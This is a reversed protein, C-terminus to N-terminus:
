ICCAPQALIQDANEAVKRFAEAHEQIVEKHLRKFHPVGFCIDGVRESVPLTGTPQRLDRSSHAIRTPRGHGYIDATNFLPHVHMPLNAGPHATSGEACVAKCFATIGVGGLEEGRYLGKAAYWGGMTSGSDKPPRHARIGPCGELLDWFYNMARQIEEIRTQYDRLQSRCLASALQNVRGKVGGLPYGRYRTLDPDTLDGHREYHGWAVAREWLARDRTMFMGAEGAVLSKQSMLSMAAVDGFTGALRGKYRSGQAHSVDEIIKIGHKQAIPLIADMDCPYGAYHVVVIARTRDTIRREIDRPNINLTDPQIDAFVVTGGLSFVPLASAWYTMSPCIIEDGARVGCAYMASQLAATGNCHTLCHPMGFWEAFDAELQKSVSTGSMDGSRLVALVAEEDEHTIIPWRVTEDWPRMVAKPGGLIALQKTVDVAM